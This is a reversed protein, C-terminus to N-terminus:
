FAEDVVPDHPLTPHHATALEKDLWAWTGKVDTITPWQSSCSISAVTNHVHGDLSWQVYGEVWQAIEELPIKLAKHSNVLLSGCISEWLSDGIPQNIEYYNVLSEWQQSLSFM